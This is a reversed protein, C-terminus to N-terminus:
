RLKNQLREQFATSLGSISENPALKGILAIRFYKYPSGVLSRLFVDVSSSIYYWNVLDNSGFLVMGCKGAQVSSFYGRTICDFMTKYVEQVLTLPRSCLFFPVSETPEKVYVNLIKGAKDTAYAEPYINVRKNFVNHMTGWMKSKLSYVYAYTYYPNFVIIRSDYYDYIMDAKELYKRFRIYKVDSEPIKCTALLKNPYTKDKTSHSYISLFDFPYDDLADTICVSERGQQMMIGRETPYLVADDIQLIGKPNSCIDRNAPQRTVYTGEEGLMLVWVGEDTFAYLPAEGFQGESIPRTNAALASIASSGVQVSNKAPFILPNEAESVKILSHNSSTTYEKEVKKYNAAFESQSSDEFVNTKTNRNTSWKKITTTTSGVTYTYDQLKYYYRSMFIPLNEDDPLIFTKDTPESKNSNTPEDVRGGFGDEYDSGNGRVAETRRNGGLNVYYSMGMTDSQHLTMTKKFYTNDFTNHLFLTMKTANSDPYAIIPPLPYQLKTKEYIVKDTGNVSITVAIVAECMMGKDGNLDLRNNLYMEYKDSLNERLNTNIAFKEEVFTSFANKTTAKVNGIHLRNNYTYAVKGGFTKKKFDALSLSQNTEMVRKLKVPKGFDNTDISVSLFFSMNDITNYVKKQPMFDMAFSYVDKEAKPGHLFNSANNITHFSEETNLFSEPTSLFVDAGIILDKLEEPINTSITIKHKHANFYTKIKKISDRWLFKNSIFRPSLVFPSSINRYTGDYMKLAVVGLSLYKFTYQDIEEIRKNIIADIGSFVIQSASPNKSTGSTNVFHGNDKWIADWDQTFDCIVSYYDQIVYTGSEISKQDTITIDYQFLSDDFINYEGNKWYAYKTSNDGVFCLINGIATVSNVKFDGLDLKHKTGDGGKETWYWSYPSGNTCNVIYHSHNENEHEAKHVYRISCTGNDLTINQEAVVPQHIPHLAGDENILNLCTALEGDQCNYDSPSNTLGKFIVEQRTAM